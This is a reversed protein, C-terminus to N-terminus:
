LANWDIVHNDRPIYKKIYSVHFVNHMRALAPPFVIRYAIPNIEELVKFPGVYHLSLKSSKGFKISSKHPKVRLLVKKGVIFNKPVWKSDAYSKKRDNSKALRQKIIGVQEEMESLM